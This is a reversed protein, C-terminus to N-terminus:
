LPVHPDSWVLNLFWDDGRCHIHKPSSETKHSLLGPSQDFLFLAIAMEASWWWAPACKTMVSWNNRQYGILLPDWRTVGNDTLSKRWCNDTSSAKCQPFLYWNEEIVRTDTCQTLPPLNPLEAANPDFGLPLTRGSSVLHALPFSLFSVEADAAVSSLLLLQALFPSNKYLQM